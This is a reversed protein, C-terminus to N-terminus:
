GFTSYNHYTIDIMKLDKHQLHLQLLDVDTLVSPIAGLEFVFQQYVFSTAPKVGNSFHYDFRIM